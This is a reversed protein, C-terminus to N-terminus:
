ALSQSLISCIPMGYILNLSHERYLISCSPMSYILNPSCRSFGGNTVFTKLEWPPPTFPPYPLAPLSSLLLDMHKWISCGLDPVAELPMAQDTSSEM